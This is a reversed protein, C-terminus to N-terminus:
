EIRLAKAEDLPGEEFLSGMLLCFASESLPYIPPCFFARFVPLEDQYIQSHVSAPSQHQGEAAVRGLSFSFSLVPLLPQDM